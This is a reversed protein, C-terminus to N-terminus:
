LLYNINVIENLVREMDVVPHDDEPLFINVCESVSRTFVVPITLTSLLHNDKACRGLHLGLLSSNLDM